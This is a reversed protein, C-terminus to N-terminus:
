CAGTQRLFFGNELRGSETSSFGAAPDYIRVPCVGAPRGSAVIGTKGVSVSPFKVLDNQVDVLL